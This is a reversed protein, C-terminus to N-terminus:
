LLSYLFLMIVLGCNTPHLISSGPATTTDPAETSNSGTTTEPATTTPDPIPEPTALASEMLSKLGVTLEQATPVIQEPPLLFGYDGTDRLEITYSYAVGADYAWDKSSGSNIYLDQSSSGVSYVTNNIKLMEAAAANGANELTSRTTINDLTYGYPMLIKQTYSHIDLFLVPNTDRVLDAIAKAEVESEIGLGRFTNSCPDGSSGEGGWGADYNRNLDIGYCDKTNNLSPDTNPNRNKRWMRNADTDSTCNQCEWTYLYGDINNIPVFYLNVREAISLFDASQLYEEM